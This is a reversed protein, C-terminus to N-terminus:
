PVAPRPESRVEVTVGARDGRRRGPGFRPRNELQREVPILPEAVSPDVFDVLNFDDGATARWAPPLQRDLEDYALALIGTLEHVTRIGREANIEEGAALALALKEFAAKFRLNMAAMAVDFRQLDDGRLGTRAVFTNRAIDVRVAWAARAEELREALSVRPDDAAPEQDPAPADDSVEPPDEATPAPAAPASPRQPATRRARGAPIGVVGTIVNLSGAEAGRGPLTKLRAIEAHAKDLERRPGWGGLALGALLAAPVLAWGSVRSWILHKM